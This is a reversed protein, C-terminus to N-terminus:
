TKSERIKKVSKIEHPIVISVGTYFTAVVYHEALM